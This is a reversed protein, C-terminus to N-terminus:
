NRMISQIEGDPGVADPDINGIMDSVGNDQMTVGYVHNAEKLAIKRLSVMIFQTDIANQKVRKSVIEANVGDLFMDVEDLVYFPSPDYEQIAFIFALSAISKEGGSLASLLLVKKGRPRAKITLGSEFLHDPDELKLEAEGGESLTAYTRQFNRNIEHYIEYFRETKKDTVNKVLKILNKRQDKLHKVDEDLKTKRQQQHTYEELARMNVPELERMNEEIVRLSDKLSDVPPLKESNISINYLKLEENIEDITEELTPLRYQARSILDYYSEIRTNIKDLEHEVEIVFKYIKERKKTFSEIKDNIQEQVHSLTQIKEQYGDRKQIFETISQKHEAIEKTCQEIHQTLELKRENLLELKKLSGEKNTSYSRMDEKIKELEETLLRVKQADEKKSGKLLIASKNQKEELLTDLKESLLTVSDQMNQQQAELNQKENIKENLKEEVTKIKGQFEKRQIALNQLLTEDATNLAISSFQQELDLLEQKIRKLQEETQEYSSFLKQLQNNIEDLKSRDADGFMLQMRPASGGIMAGSAEILSGRLDVLRVGGMLKRANDITDVVVTDGFVYWFAGRYEEKFHVLDIAFGKSADDKVVMLAKGRPKGSIMKNLPLFTARGLNRKQLYKIAKAASEDEDVVISQMRSGAAIAMATKYQQDVQALEAITGHIGSLEKNDRAKIVESVARNYKHQVSTIADYEAQLKAQQQQARRIGQDLDHLQATLESEQKKKDFLSQELKKKTKKSESSKGKLEELQWDIDKIEFAYTEKSEQLDAIQHDFIDLQDIVRQLALKEEHLQSNKADFEEKIILLEKSLDLSADDSSAISGKLLQLQEEKQDIEKQITTLNNEIEQQHEQVEDIEDNIQQLRHSYNQLEKNLEKIEDNAYNIREETKIEEKRVSEIEKNIQKVEDGGTNSIHKEIATLEEQNEKMKEKQLNAKMTLQQQEQEYSNIQQQIETIQQQIEQKKKTAIKAKIEFLQQKLENYRAAEDRDNKLQKLQADIERVIIKIRELNADVEEHEKQAKNLDDDFTKIGAIEDIIKRREVGGMEIISTVDGQKVINYGDGSIRAQQLISTFESYSSAKGNIYYYSYYNDPDDKLPARKIMRTLMVDNADIPMKRSTNDFVLSVRCKNAPNKQKKGGNFILDTLRTARMTKSSKPGLVFLIADAINSKGSGNPGTIATFGPFLPVTLKRGFSKFNEMSVEKLYLDM